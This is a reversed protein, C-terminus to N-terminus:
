ARLLTFRFATGTGATGREAWIRGGLAEVITRSVALGMGMGGSKTTFFPDFVKEIHGDPIGPGSDLVAVEVTGAPLARAEIVIRRADIPCAQLADMGNILLNLLVQSLHVRDGSVFPLEPQLTCDLKVDRAAAEGHVLSIVDQVVQDLALPVREISRRKILARMHDIVEAARADNAAIAAVIARLDSLNPNEARLCVKAAEVNTRLATLPQSLEHALASALQGLATVRGLHTLEGRLGTLEQRARHSSKIERSLELAMASLTFIFWPTALVPIHVIGLLAVQTLLIVNVMPVVLVIVVTLVRRQAEPDARRLRQICAEAVYVVMLLLSGTSLWQGRVVIDGPISVQEGLFAVHRLNDIERWNFNPHVLFNGVLIVLRVSVITWALSWRGAGLYSRILFVYGVIVFFVPVHYWSLWSAYEAPTAAHMMGVECRAGAIVALAIFPVIARALDRREAFWALGCMAALTFAAAAGMSWLITVLGM